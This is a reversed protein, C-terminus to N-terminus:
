ETKEPVSLGEKKDYGDMMMLLRYMVSTLGDRILLPIASV